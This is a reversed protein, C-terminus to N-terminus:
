FRCSWVPSPFVICLFCFVIFFCSVQRLDFPLGAVVGKLGRQQRSCLVVVDRHSNFSFSAGGAETSPYSGMMRLLDKLPMVSLAEAEDYTVENVKSRPHQLQDAGGGESGGLAGGRGGEGKLELFRVPLVQREQDEV